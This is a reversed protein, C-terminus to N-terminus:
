AANIADVLVGIRSAVQTAIADLAEKEPPDISVAGGITMEVILALRRIEGLEELQQLTLKPLTAGNAAPAKRTKPKTKTM